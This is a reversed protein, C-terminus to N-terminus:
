PTTNRGVAGCPFESINGALTPQEQKETPSLLATYNIYLGKRLPRLCHSLFSFNVDSVGSVCWTNKMKSPGM